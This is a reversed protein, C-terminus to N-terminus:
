KLHIGKLRKAFVGRASRAVSGLIPSMLNLQRLLSNVGRNVCGYPRLLLPTERLHKLHIQTIM